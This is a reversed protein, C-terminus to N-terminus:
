AQMQMAQINSFHFYNKLGDISLPKGVLIRLRKHAERTTHLLSTPGIVQYGTYFLNLVIVFM